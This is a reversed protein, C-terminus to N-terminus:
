DHGGGCAEKTASVTSLLADVVRDSDAKSLNNYLPLLLRQGSLDYTAPCETPRAAARRGRESRHLPVYYFVPYVKDSLMCKLVQDRPQNFPILKTM